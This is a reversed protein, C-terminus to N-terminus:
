LRRPAEGDPLRALLEEVREGTNPHRWDPAVEGLPVLVFSRQSIRPHPLSVPGTMTKGDHDLLDIDLTRPANAV